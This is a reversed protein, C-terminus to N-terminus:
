DERRDNRYHCMDICIRLKHLAVDEPNGQFATYANFYLQIFDPPISFRLFTFREEEEESM